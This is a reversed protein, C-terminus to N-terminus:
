KFAEADGIGDVNVGLALKGISGGSELIRHGERVGKLTLPLTKKLHCKVEGAELLERLEDLIKGHSDPGVGYYPKTGLLAWVFTLSKAMFPTGYMSNMGQTQVISCVKGFPAALEACQALYQETRHTIFIHNLPVDLKLERVQAM